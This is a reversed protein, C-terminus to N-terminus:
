RKRQRLAYFSCFKEQLWDCGETPKMCFHWSDRWSESYGAGELRFSVPWFASTMQGAQKSNGDSYLGIKASAPGSLSVSSSTLGLGEGAM